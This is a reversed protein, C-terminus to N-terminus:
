RGRPPWGHLHNHLREPVEIEFNMIASSLSKGQPEISISNAVGGRLAEQSVFNLGWIGPVEYRDVRGLIRTKYHAKFADATLQERILDFLEADYAYVGVNSINGKDGARAHAIHRLKVKM